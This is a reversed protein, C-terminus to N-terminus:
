ALVVRRKVVEPSPIFADFPFIDKALKALKPRKIVLLKFDLYNEVWPSLLTVSFYFSCDAGFNNKLYTSM